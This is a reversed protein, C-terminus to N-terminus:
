DYVDGGGKRGEKESKMEQEVRYDRGKQGGKEGIQETGQGLIGLYEEEEKVNKGGRLGINNHRLEEEAQNGQRNNTEIGSNNM